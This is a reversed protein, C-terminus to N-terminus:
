PQREVKAVQARVLQWFAAPDAPTASTGSVQVGVSAGRVEVVAILTQNDGTSVTFGQHRSLDAPLPKVIARTGYRLKASCTTIVGRMVTAMPREIVSTELDLAGRRAKADTSHAGALAKDVRHEAAGCATDSILEGAPEGVESRVSYGTSGAPFENAALVARAPVVPAAQAVAPLGALALFTVTSGVLVHRARM